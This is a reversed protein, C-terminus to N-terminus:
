VKVLAIGAVDDESPEGDSNAAIVALLHDFFAEGPEATALALRVADITLRVGDSGTLAFLGDTFLLACDSSALTIQSQDLELETSIGLLTGHPGFSEVLGGTTRRVLLPPHGASAFRLTGRPHIVACCASLFARGGFLECFERNVARLIAAPESEDDSAQNFLVAALATFLAAAAGHGTADALWFLRRGHGLERWGFVDGGVQILPRYVTQVSWGPVVPVAAPILVQQTARAAALDEEQERRWRGLEENHRRLERALARLRLQTHIRAELIARSIPKTVFDSAGAHLCDIEESEGAHATLMIVPLERIAPLDDARLRRCVEAGTLDPMEFDLILLDPEIAAIMELAEGGNAATLVEFGSGSLTAQLLRRTTADDDVLLVKPAPVPPTPLLSPLARRDLM